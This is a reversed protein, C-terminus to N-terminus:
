AGYMLTFHIADENSISRDAFRAQNDTIGGISVWSHVDWCCKVVKCTQKNCSRQKIM